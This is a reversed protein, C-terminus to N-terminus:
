EKFESLQPLVIQNTFHDLNVDSGGISVTNYEVTFTQGRSTEYADYSIGSGCAGNWLWLDTWYPFIPVDPFYQFPLEYNGVHEFKPAELISLMGSVGVYVTDSFSGYIGVQFPLQVTAYEDEHFDEHFEEPDFLATPNALVTTPGCIATTTAATTTTTEAASSAIETTNSESATTTSDTLIPPQISRLPRQAVAIYSGLEHTRRWTSVLSRWQELTWGQKSITADLNLMGGFRLASRYTNQGTFYAPWPFDGTNTSYCDVAECTAPILRGRLRLRGKRVHSFPAEPHLLDLETHLLQIKSIYRAREPGLSGTIGLCTNGSISAWSWSPFDPTQDRIPSEARPTGIRNDGSAEWLLGFSLDFEWLGALYKGHQGDALRDAIASIAAMRDAPFSLRRSHYETLLSYWDLDGNFHLLKHRLVDSSRLSLKNYFEAGYTHLVGDTPPGDKFSGSACFFRLGTNSYIALRPALIHEQLTWARRHIPDSPGAEYKSLILSGPDNNPCRYRLRYTEDKPHCLRLFGETSSSAIAASIVLTSFEYIQHMTGLERALDNPDDQIICLSDVWIYKIGLKRTVLIADKISQPQSDVSFGHFREHTNSMTTREPQSGGWCYSLAVYSSADIDSRNALRIRGMGSSRVDIVRSPMFIKQARMCLSSIRMNDEFAFLLLVEVSSASPIDGSERGAELDRNLPAPLISQFLQCGGSAAEVAFIGDLKLAFINNAPVHPELEYPQVELKQCFACAHPVPEDTSM